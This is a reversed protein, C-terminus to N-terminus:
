WFLLGLVNQSESIGTYEQGERLAICLVRLQLYREFLQLDHMQGM